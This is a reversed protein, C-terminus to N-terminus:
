PGAVAAVDITYTYTRSTRGAQSVVVTVTISGDLDGADLAYTATNAAPGVDTGAGEIAVTASTGAVPTVTVTVTDTAVADTIVVSDGNTLLDPDSVAITDAGAGVDAVSIDIATPEVVVTDLVEIVFATKIAGDKLVLAARSNMSLSTDYIDDTDEVNWIKADSALPYSAFNSSLDAVDAFGYSGNGVYTVAQGNVVNTNGFTM